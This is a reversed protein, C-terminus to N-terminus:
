LNNIELNPLKEAPQIGFVCCYFAYESALAQEVNRAQRFGHGEGAFEVYAVPLRKRNLAAVMERAQNPPVM